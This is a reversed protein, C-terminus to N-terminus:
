LLHVLSSVVSSFKMEEHRAEPRLLKTLRVPQLMSHWSTEYDYNWTDGESLQMVRKYIAERSPANFGCDNYRMISNEAARYCGKGALHVGEYIGIHEDAYREDNVFQSWKVKSPNSRWDGSDALLAMPLLCAVLIFYWRRM